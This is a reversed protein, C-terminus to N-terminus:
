ADYDINSVFPTAVVAGRLNVDVKELLNAENFTPRYVSNDPATVSTPRNLADYTTQATFPDAEVLPALVTEVASPIFKAAGDAPLVADVASWDIAQKYEEAIRRATRLLNGKFDHAESTSAGAQDLHLYLKGRLNREEAEPHQEGYVLRETLLEENPNAPDAGTVFVRVPRRLEDYETRSTHGRSDWAYLTGGAVDGLMWRGGAEMSVQHVQNGLMDYDYRMVLRDNADTVERQNGEIDLNLRTPYNEEITEITDDPKRRDFKNQVITLFPRFLSDFHTVSPTNAHKAAKAAAKKEAARTKPDPWKLGAEAAHAPDTRLVHWSPLYDAEPLRSFQSVDDDTQPDFTVTDNVDYTTQEWTDFVVKEYTHNPHLTAVVREVPDYFLVPSVGEALGFKFDHTDDFFPEYQRVPKGKNNFVTWGSGVWRPSVVPGGEEVPGPEAQIKKQIERGFGDSYSFGIQIKSLQNAAPDHVHTERVITATVPPEGSRRFRDLDYIVRTTANGLLYRAIPSPVSEEANASALRPSAIFADSQARTPDAISSDLSDGLTESAKGMVATGTMMGLADFAVEARNGNPDTVLSPQLVRYDIRATLRNSLADETKIVSLDHPGYDVTASQDFPDVFKRPLFFHARAETLEQPATSSPNEIDPDIHFFVKGSPIWWNADGSHVYRGHDALMGDTVKAGYVATVLTPTLALKYSEFPIALSDLHGLPLPGALDNRRYLTRVQEILRRYPHSTTAGSASVDEYPLDHLGDGAQSAKSAMEDFRFLNTIDPLDRDPLLKLLEFTRAECTMPGRYDNPQDVPYTVDNETYVIRLQEQKDKDGGELASLGPRRGYGIAVSKLVNGYGDVELTMAHKVRPDAMKKGGVEILKREYQFDISERPHTFFVAHRNDAKPQLLEITYNQETATYPRDEEDTGDLAYVERRLVSGRLARCAEQIEEATLDWPISSGDQHKLTTPLVSDPLLMAQLQEATLGSVGESEDGEQYYEDEFHRSIRSGEIYAGTHFWTRTLVTPVYSAADINVADPFDGSDTLAALEETDFQEVLGFGRFEREIGDFYGHHYAYRTVFRNRSILDRTEVREVVHVPFPLRTIWPKGSRKDALYFRTSPAYQVVTEAGLNNVTKVLLHPKQGGMLDMYRVPRRAEGPLASSWVLCATGNGQLDVAQVSSLSDVRPFPGLRRAESLRNGSQNFY